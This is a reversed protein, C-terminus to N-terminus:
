ADARRAAAALLLAASWEKRPPIGARNFHMHQLDVLIDVVPRTLWGDREAHALQAGLEVLTHRAEQYSREGLLIHHAAALRPTIEDLVAESRALVRTREEESDYLRELVWRVQREYAAHRNDADCALATLLDDASALWVLDRRESMASLRLVNASDETFVQHVIALGDVGGYRDIEPEYPAPVVTPRRHIVRRAAETVLTLLAAWESEPGLFRLRLHCGSVFAGDDSYRVFFWQRRSATAWLPRLHEILLEDQQEPELYIKVYRWGAIGGYGSM